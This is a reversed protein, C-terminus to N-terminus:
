PKPFRQTSCSNPTASTVVQCALRLSFRLHAMMYSRREMEVAVQMLGANRPYVQLNMTFPGQYSPMNFIRM